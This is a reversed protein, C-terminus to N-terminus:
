THPHLLAFDQCRRFNRTNKIKVKSRRIEAHTTQWKRNIQFAGRLGGSRRTSMLSDIYIYKAIYLNCWLKGTSINKTIRRGLLILPLM